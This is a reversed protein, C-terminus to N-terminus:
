KKWSLSMASDKFICKAVLEYTNGCVVVIRVSRNIKGALSKEPCPWRTCVVRHGLHLCPLEM